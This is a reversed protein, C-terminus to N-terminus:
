RLIAESDVILREIQEMCSNLGAAFEWRTLTRNGRFTQDPFGVICGYREVLSRLAEYAWDGPSVDRLQNINNVQGISDNELEQNISNINNYRDIAELLKRPEPITETDSNSVSQALSSDALKVERNHLVETQQAVTTVVSTETAISSNNVLLSTGLIVPTVQFVQWLWHSM